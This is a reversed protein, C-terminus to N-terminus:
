AHNTKYHHREHMIKGAKWRQVTVEHFDRHGWQAHDFVYHWDTVTIDDSVLTNVVTASKNSLSALFQKMNEKHKQLSDASQSENEFDQLSEDYFLEFAQEYDYAAVLKNLADLKQSLHDMAFFKKNISVVFSNAFFKAPM